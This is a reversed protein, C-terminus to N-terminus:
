AMAAMRRCSEACRRCVEACQQMLPDDDMAACEDACRACIEACVGCTRAHFASSRIMFDASTACIQACDQLTRIHSAEAHKGGQQLCHQITALCIAHCETCNAICEQMEASTHSSMSQRLM